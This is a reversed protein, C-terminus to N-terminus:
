KAGCGSPGACSAKDGGGKGGGGKDGDTKCGGQGKCANQGKCAHKDTKCGGQGKCANLGKCAHKGTEDLQQIDDGQAGLPGFAANPAAHALSSAGLVIGTIAAALLNTNM